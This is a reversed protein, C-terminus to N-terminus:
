FPIEEDLLIQKRKEDIRKIMLDYHHKKLKSFSSVKFATLAAEKWSPNTPNIHMNIQNEIEKEQEKSIFEEEIVPDFVESEWFAKTRSTSSFPDGGRFMEELEIPIELFAEKIKADVPKHPCPNIEYETHVQQGSKFVKIDYGYPSGWDKDKSLAEIRKRITAQTIELVQVKQAAYNWVIFAWFHRIPKESDVPKEPKNNLRFRIPKKNEWDEWGIIPSSLIRFKNEGDELKMYSSNSKPAEYDSPLFSM